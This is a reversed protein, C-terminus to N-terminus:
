EMQCVSIEKGESLLVEGFKYIDEKYQHTMKVENGLGNTWKLIYMQKEM